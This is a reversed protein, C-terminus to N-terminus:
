AARVLPFRAGLGCLHTEGLESRLQTIADDVEQVSSRTFKQLFVYGVGAKPDLIRAWKVSPIRVLKRHVVISTPQDVGRQVTLEVKTANPGKILEIAANTATVSKGDIATIVDGVQLGAAEAPGGVMPYIVRVKDDITQVVIGIGTLYGNTNRNYSDEDEPRYYHSYQDLDDVMGAIAAHLLDTRRQEDLEFIYHEDIAAFARSLIRLETEPLNSGPALRTGLWLFSLATTTTLAMVAFLFWAPM